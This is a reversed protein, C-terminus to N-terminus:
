AKINKFWEKLAKDNITWIVVRLMNNTNPNAAQKTKSTTGLKNVKIFQILNDSLKFNPSVDTFMIFRFRNYDEIVEKNDVWRGMARDAVQQYHFRYQSVYTIIDKTKSGKLGDFDRVGCCSTSNINM